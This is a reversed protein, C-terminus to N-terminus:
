QILGKEKAMSNLTYAIDYMFLFANEPTYSGYVSILANIANGITQEFAEHNYWLKDNNPDIFVSSNVGYLEKLFQCSGDIIGDVLVNPDYDNSMKSIVADDIVSEVIKNLDFNLFGELSLPDANVSKSDSDMESFDDFAGIGGYFTIPDLGVYATIENGNVVM